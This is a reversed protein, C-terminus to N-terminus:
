GASSLVTSPVQGQCLTPVAVTRQNRPGLAIVQGLPHLQNEQWPCRVEPIEGSSMKRHVYKVTVAQHLLGRQVPRSGTMERNWNKRTKPNGPICKWM